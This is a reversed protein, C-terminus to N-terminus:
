ISFNGTGVAATSVMEQWALEDAGMMTNGGMICSMSTEFQQHHTSGWHVVENISYKDTMAWKVVSDDVNLVIKSADLNVVGNALIEKGLLKNVDLIMGPQVAANLLIKVTFTSIGAIPQGIVENMDPVYPARSKSMRNVADKDGYTDPFIQIESTTMTYLLNYEGLLSRFEKLFTDQFVRGRPLVQQLIDESVGFASITNFGYDAAMSKIADVLKTGPPIAKMQKFETAYGGAKSICFLEVVSEPAKKYGVANTVVGSFITPTSNNIEVVQGYNSKPADFNRRGGTAYLRDDDEYGARIEIHLQGFSKDQLFKIEDVSLNFMRVNATDCPWGITSRVQFEIAHKTFTTKISPDEARSVIIEVKRMWPM